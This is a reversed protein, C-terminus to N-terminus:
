FQWNSDQPDPVGPVRVQTLLKAVDSSASEALEVDEELGRVALTKLSRGLRAIESDSWLDALETFRASAKTLTSKWGDLLVRDSLFSELVDRAEITPEFLAIAERM